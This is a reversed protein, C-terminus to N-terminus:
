GLSVLRYKKLVLLEWNCLTMFKERVDDKKRGFKKWPIEAFAISM